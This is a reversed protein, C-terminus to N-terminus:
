HAHQNAATSHDAGRDSIEQAAAPDLCDDDIAGPESTGRGAFRATEQCQVPAVPCREFRECPAAKGQVGAQGLLDAGFPIIPRKGGIGPGHSKALAAARVADIPQRCFHADTLTQAGSFCSGLNVRSFKRGCHHPGRFPLTRLQAEPLHGSHHVM